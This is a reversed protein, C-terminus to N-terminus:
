LCLSAFWDDLNLKQALPGICVIQLFYWKVLKDENSNPDGLFIPLVTNMTELFAM